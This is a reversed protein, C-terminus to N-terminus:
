IANYAQKVMTFYTGDIKPFKTWILMLDEINLLYIYLAYADIQAM